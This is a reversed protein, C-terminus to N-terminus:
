KYEESQMKILTWNNMDVWNGGKFGLTVKYIFSSEVGLSNKAAVKRLITYTGDSNKDTSCDFMSFDATSPHRLDQKIFDESIICPNASEDTNTYSTSSTTQKPSSMDCVKPGYMFLITEFYEIKEYKRLYEKLNNGKLNLAKKYVDCFSEKKFLGTGIALKFEKFQSDTFGADIRFGNDNLYQEEATLQKVEAPVIPEITNSVSDFVIMENSNLTEDSGKKCSIFALISLVIIIKKM